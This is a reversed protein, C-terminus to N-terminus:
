IVLGKKKPQKKPVSDYIAIIHHLTSRYPEKSDRCIKYNKWKWACWLVIIILIRRPERQGCWWEFAVHISVFVVHPFGFLIALDYWVQKSSKCQFFMHLNSEKHSECMSCRSPGHWSRKRLNDWTLNKNNFVLWAFYIMKLPCGSKWLVMPFKSSTHLVKSSITDFYIDKVPAPFQANPVIWILDETTGCRQIGCGRLADKVVKWSLNLEEPLGLDIADKWLPVPGCWASILKDWTFNGNRHLFYLLNEPISINGRSCVIPDFGILISSGSHIRWKLNKIFYKEVKRFNLWIASRAQNWNRWNQVLIGSKQREYIKTKSHCEM